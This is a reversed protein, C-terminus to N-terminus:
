NTAIKRCDQCSSTLLSLNLFDGDKSSYHSTYISFKRREKLGLVKSLDEDIPHVGASYELQLIAKRLGSIYRQATLPAHVKECIHYFLIKEDQMGQETFRIDYTKM